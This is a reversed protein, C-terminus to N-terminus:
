QVPNMLGTVHRTLIADIKFNLCKADNSIKRCKKIVALDIFTILAPAQQELLANPICM